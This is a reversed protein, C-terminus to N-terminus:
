LISFIHAQFPTVYLAHLQMVKRSCSRLVMFYYESSPHHACFRASYIKWSGQVLRIKEWLCKFRFSYRTNSDAWCYKISRCYTNSISCWKQHQPLLVLKLHQQSFFYPEHLTRSLSVTCHSSSIIPITIWSIIINKLPRASDARAGLAVEPWNMFSYLNYYKFLLKWFRFSSYWDFTFNRVGSTSNYM